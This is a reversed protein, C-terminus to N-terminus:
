WFMTLATRAAAASIRAVQRAIVGIKRRELPVM